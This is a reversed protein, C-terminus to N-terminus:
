WDLSVPRGTLQKIFVVLLWKMYYVLVFYYMIAFHFSCIKFYLKSIFIQINHSENINNWKVRFGRFETYDPAVM